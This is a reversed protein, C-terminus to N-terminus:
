SRANSASPKNDNRADILIVNPDGTLNLERLIREVRAQESATFFTIVKLARPADSAKQYIEVQHQLNSKLQKNSALKFEIVTSDAAGRSIKFDVPGRGNNVERNIDSRTGFWTLRYFIQLHEERTILKGKRDYFARYGDKNEIVDKLFEVRARSEVLTSGTLQYFLTENALLRRLAKVEEVYLTYADRVREASVAEADEGHEEKDRIYHEILEPFREVTAARAARIEKQSAKDPKSLQSYFYNNVQSRLADNPLAQALEDVSSLLDDRNIWIQDKTLLDKPTLLVFDGNVVPLDFRGREWSETAFNFRVREVTVPRVKAPDIHERAFRETYGLLFEKMLVTTFDSINDRGVGDKILCLKELHSGKTITEQGFSSFISNLNQNLARAFDPGLGRGENGVRSFGLWNQKVESFTFWAKLLGGNVMGAVSKDRLFRLYRIIEDHIARYQPNDSNFLLFPDIFLPLDNLLSVNFAGYEDLKQPDVDFVDTFYLGPESDSIPTHAEEADLHLVSKKLSGSDKSDQL